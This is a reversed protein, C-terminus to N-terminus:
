YRQKIQEVLEDHTLPLAWARAQKRKLDIESKSASASVPSRASVAQSILSDQTMILGLFLQCFTYWHMTCAKDMLDLHYFRMFDACLITADADWDFVRKKSSSPKSNGYAILSFGRDRFALAQTIAEQPHAEVAAPLVGDKMYFASLILLAYDFTDEGDFTQSQIGVRWHTNIPVDTEAIRVSDPAGYLLYDIM